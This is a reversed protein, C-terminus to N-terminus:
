SHLSQEVSESRNLLDLGVLGNYKNEKTIKNDYIGIIVDNIFEEKEKFIVKIKEVKIGVLMGNQKGLSAFPILRIKSIYRNELGQLDGGKIIDLTEILEEPLIKEIKDKEVVIVPYGNIPDKLMNGSDILVKVKEKKDGFYIEIWCIMDSASIKNKTIKFAIQIIIFAVAGALLTVKIPYLGVLVGNNIRVNEPSIFYILAFSCGGFVFSILYFMLLDKLLMKYNEETFSLWVMTVSLVIKMIINSAIKTINLYIVIAYVSGILSSIILRTHKIKRKMVIGTAFLIIYNMCLNEFLIIDLYIKM